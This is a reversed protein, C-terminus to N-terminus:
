YKVTLNVRFLCLFSMERQSYEELDFNEELKELKNLQKLKSKGAYGKLSKSWIENYIARFKTKEEQLSEFQRQEQELFEERHNLYSDFNGHFVRFKGRDLHILM